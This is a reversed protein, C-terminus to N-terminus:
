NVVQSGHSRPDSAGQPAAPVSFASTQGTAQAHPLPEGADLAILNAEMISRPLEGIAQAVAQGDRDLFVFHPIGDVRYSLIEPLWKTNDVNLMVFNVRDGYQQKLANMDPAMAQCSTCWNAYFEMLTPKDNTLAVELPVAEAAIASLTASGSETRLGLFVATSLVVAVLVILLNRVRTALSTQAPKSVAASTSNPLPDAM